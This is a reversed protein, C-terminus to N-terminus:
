EEIEGAFMEQVECAVDWETIGQLISIQEQNDIIDYGAESIEIQFRNM